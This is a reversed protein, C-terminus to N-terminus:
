TKPGGHAAASAASAAQAKSGAAGTAARVLAPIAKTEPPLFRVRRCLVSLCRSNVFSLLFGLTGIALLGTVLQLKTHFPMAGATTFMSVSTGFTGCLRMISFAAETERAYRSGLEASFVASLTSDGFGFAAALLYIPM